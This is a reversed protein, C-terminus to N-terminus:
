IRKANSIKIMISDMDKIWNILEPDIWNIIQTISNYVDEVYNFDINNGNFCIPENHNIRNRFERIKNLRDCVQIRGIGSPLHNFIQIPRGRLIRYHSLEFLNTWFGLTQDAIIKGSTVPIRIRRLRNESKEVSTKLYDNTVIRRTRHDRYTLSPDIMFGAKQNIIWDPDVFYGSLIINIKNRLIVALIGLIPHFSQSIKLNAKYLKVSKTSSYATAIQYRDIRSPSLYLQVKQFRM